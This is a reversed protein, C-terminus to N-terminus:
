KKVLTVVSFCQMGEGRGFTTLDEGSTATIGVKDENIGCLSAITKKMDDEIPLIKPRKGEIMIGINSIKYEADSVLKLAVKLYEKSDKIGQKECMEDAYHSISRGGVAQSSAAVASFLM